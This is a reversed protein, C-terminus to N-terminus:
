AVVEMRASLADLRAVEESVAARGDRQADRAREAARHATEVVERLSADVDREVQRRGEVVRDICDNMVRASNTELLRRFYDAPAIRRFATRGTLEPLDTFYFRRRALRPELEDNAGLGRLIEAFRAATGAFLETAQPEIERLFADTAARALRRADDERVPRGNAAALFRDRAAALQRSLKQQQAAFLFSLDDLAQQATEVSREMQVIRRENEEVPALLARRHEQIARALASRVRRAARQRASEVVDDRALSELREVLARWDGSRETASVVFLDIPRKLRDNLADRAFEAALAADAAPIRDAKNLVAICHATEEGIAGALALEEGSLPPDAGTVLLAVDIQPVFGRTVASGEGFISGLGPTDVLCMGSALLPVDARVEVVAVGKRNGANREESVYDGISEPPVVMESGDILRVSAATEPGHRVLTVVNTVPVVGWPLIPRGTLANILTSKGRKFQGVCAVHFRREAVRTATREADAAIQAAGLDRAIAAMLVLPDDPGTL